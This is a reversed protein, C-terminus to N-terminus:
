EADGPSRFTFREYSAAALAVLCAGLLWGAVVDTLWHVGLYIRTFGVGLVSVACVLVAAWWLRPGVGQRGLLWLLLGLTVMATMAHGSPFAAYNASDVPDQWHPRERGLAWKVVQQLATGLASAAAVWLALLAARRLLLLVVVAAILLRMTWPDWVWDTFVRNVHTFGPEALASRHLEDAITVDLTMLPGWAAGVLVLLLAALGATLSATRAPSPVPTRPRPPRTPRHM